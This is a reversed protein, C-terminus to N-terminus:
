RGDSTTANLVGAVTGDNARSEGELKDGDKWRRYASIDFHYQTSPQLGTVTGQQWETTTYPVEPGRVWDTPTTLKYYIYYGVSGVAGVHVSLGEKWQWTVSTDTIAVPTTDVTDGSGFRMFGAHYPISTLSPNRTIFLLTFNYILVVIINMGLKDICNDGFWWDGHKSGGECGNTCLSLGTVPHCQVPDICHSLCLLTCSRGYKGFPCASIGLLININHSDIIYLALIGQIYKYVAYLM